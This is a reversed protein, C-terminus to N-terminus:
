KDEKINERTGAYLWPLLLSRPGQKEESHAASQQLM